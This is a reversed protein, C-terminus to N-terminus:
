RKIPAVQNCVRAEARNDESNIKILAGDNHAPRIRNNPGGELLSYINFYSILKFELKFNNPAFLRSPIQVPAYM